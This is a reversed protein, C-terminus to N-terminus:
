PSDAGGWDKFNCSSSANVVQEVFWNKTVVPKGDAFIEVSWKTM